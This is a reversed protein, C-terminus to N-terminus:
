SETRILNKEFEELYQKNFWYYKFTDFMFECEDEQKKIFKNTMRKAKNKKVM